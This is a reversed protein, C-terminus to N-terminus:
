SGVATAQWQETATASGCYPSYSFIRENATAAHGRDSFHFIFTSQQPWYTQAGNASGCPLSEVPFIAHWGDPERILPTRLSGGDVQRTITLICHGGRGCLRQINWKRQYTLGPPENSYGISSTITSTATWTGTTPRDGAGDPFGPVTLTSSAEPLQAAATQDARNFIGALALVGACAAGAVAPVLWHPAGGHASQGTRQITAVTAMVIACMVVAGLAPSAFLSANNAAHLAICPWISGTREYILCSAISFFGIPPLAWLPYHSLWHVLVFMGTTLLAAHPWPCARRLTGYVFGRFFFEEAAPALVVAAIILGSSVGATPASGTTVTFPGFLLYYAATAVVLCAYAVLDSKGALVLPTKRLGFQWPTPGDARHAFALAVGVLTADTFAVAMLVTVHVNLERVLAAGTLVIAVSLCFGLPAYRVPWHAAPRSELRASRHRDPHLRRGCGCSRSRVPVDRGCSSCSLTLGRRALWSGARWIAIPLWIALAGLATLTIVAGARFGSPDRAVRRGVEYVLLIAFLAALVCLAAALAVVVRRAGAVAVRESGLPSLL